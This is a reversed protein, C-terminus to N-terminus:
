RAQRDKGALRSQGGRCKWEAQQARGQRCAQRSQVSRGEQRYCRAMGAQEVRFSQRGGQEARFEQMGARGQSGAQIIEKRSAQETRGEQSGARGQRGEQDIRGAQRNQV